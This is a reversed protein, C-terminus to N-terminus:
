KGRCKSTIAKVIDNKTSTKLSLSYELISNIKQPYKGQLQNYSSGNIDKEDFLYDILIRAAKTGKTEEELINMQYREIKILPYNPSIAVEDILDTEEFHDKELDKIISFLYFLKQQHKILKNNEATIKILENSLRENETKLEQNEKIM